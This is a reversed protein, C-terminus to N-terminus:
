RKLRWFKSKDMSEEAAGNGTLITAGAINIMMFKM